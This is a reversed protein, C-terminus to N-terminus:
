CADRSMKTKRGIHAARMQFLAVSTGTAHLALPVPRSVRRLKVKKTM